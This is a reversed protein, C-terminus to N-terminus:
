WYIKAPFIVDYFYLLMIAVNRGVEFYQAEKKSITEGQYDCFSFYNFGESVTLTCIWYNDDKNRREPCAYLNLKLILVLIALKWWFLLLM